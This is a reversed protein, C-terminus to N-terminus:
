LTKLLLTKYKIINRYTELILKHNTQDSEYLAISQRLLDYVVPYEEPYVKELFILQESTKPNQFGNHLAMRAILDRISFFIFKATLPPQTKEYLSEKKWFNLDTIEFISTCWGISNEDVNPCRLQSMEHFERSFKGCKSVIDKELPRKQSGEAEIGFLELIDIITNEFEHFGNSYQTNSIEFDIDSKFSLISQGFSGRFIISFKDNITFCNKLIDVLGVIITDALDARKFANPLGKQFKLSIFNLIASCIKSIKTVQYILDQFSKKNELLIGEKWNEMYSILHLMIFKNLETKDNILGFSAGAKYLCISLGQVMKRLFKNYNEETISQRLYATAFTYFVSLRSGVLDDILHGLEFPTIDLSDADSFRAESIFTVRECRKRIIRPYKEIHAIRGYTIEFRDLKSHYVKIGAYRLFSKLEQEFNTNQYVQQWNLIWKFLSIDSIACNHSEQFYTDEWDFLIVNSNNLIINRPVFGVWDIGKELLITLM